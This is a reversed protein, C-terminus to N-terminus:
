LNLILIIVMLFHVSSVLLLKSEDGKTINSFLNQNNNPGGKLADSKAQSYDLFEANNLYDFFDYSGNYKFTNNRSM